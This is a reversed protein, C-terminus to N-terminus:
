QISPSSSEGGRQQGSQSRYEDRFGPLLEDLFDEVKRTAATLVAGQINGWTSALRSGAQSSLGSSSEMGGSGVYSRRGYAGPRSGGSAMAGVAAGGTFAIALVLWPNKAYHTKWDFNSKVRSELEELNRGLQERREEIHKEIRESEQEM